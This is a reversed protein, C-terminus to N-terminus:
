QGAPVTQSPHHHRGPVLSLDVSSIYIGLAAAICIVAAWFRWDRHARVWYPRDQHSASPHPGQEHHPHTHGHETM